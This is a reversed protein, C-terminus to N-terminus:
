KKNYIDDDEDDDESRGDDDFDINMDHREEELYDATVIINDSSDKDDGILENIENSQQQQFTTM